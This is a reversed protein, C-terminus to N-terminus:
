LENPISLLFLLAPPIVIDSKLSYSLTLAVFVAHYQYLLICSSWYFLIFSGFILGCLWVWGIKSSSVLFM